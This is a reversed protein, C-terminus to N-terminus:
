KMELELMKIVADIAALGSGFCAGFKGGEIASLNNELIARTPETRSYEFGKHIGIEEQMPQHRITPTMIAGTSTQIFELM